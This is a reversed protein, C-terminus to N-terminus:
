ILGHKQEQANRHPKINSTAVIIVNAQRKRLMALCITNKEDVFVIENSRKLKPLDASDTTKRDLNDNTETVKLIKHNGTSYNDDESENENNITPKENAKVEPKM